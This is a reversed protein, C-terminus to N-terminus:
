QEDKKDKDTPEVFSYENESKLMPNLNIPADLPDQMPEEVKGAQEEEFEKQSKNREKFLMVILVVILMFTGVTVFMDAVNFIAFSEWFAFQIFDRVYGPNIRDILNGLGGGVIFLLSIRLWETEKQAFILYISIAVIVIATVVTLATTNGSFMGFGAGTNTTFTIDILGKILPHSEGITMTKEIHAKTLLDVLLIVGIVAIEILIVWWRKKLVDIVDQKSIKFKAM